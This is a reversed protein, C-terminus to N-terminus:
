NRYIISIGRVRIYRNRAFLIRRPGRERSLCFSSSSLFFLFCIILNEARLILIYDLIWLYLYWFRGMSCEGGEFYFFTGQPCKKKIRNPNWEGHLLITTSLFFIKASFFFFFNLFTESAISERIGSRNRAVYFRNQVSWKFPWVQDLYLFFMIPSDISSRFRKRRAHM